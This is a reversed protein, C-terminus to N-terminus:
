NWVVIENGQRLLPDCAACPTRALSKRHLPSCVAELPLEEPWARSPVRRMTPLTTDIELRAGTAFALSRKAAGSPTASHRRRLQGGRCSPVSQPQIRRQPPKTPLVSRRIYGHRQLDSLTRPLMQQSRIRILRRMEAPTMLVFNTWKSSLGHTLDSTLCTGTINCHM